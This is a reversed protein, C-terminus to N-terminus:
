GKITKDALTNIQKNTEEVLIYVGYLCPGPRDQECNWGWLRNGMAQSM